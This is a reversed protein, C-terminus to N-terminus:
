RSVDGCRARGATPVSQLSPSFTSTVSLEGVCIAGGVALGPRQERVFGGGLGRAPRRLRVDSGPLYPTCPLPATSCKELPSDLAIVSRYGLTDAVPLPVPTLVDVDNVRWHFLRQPLAPAAPIVLDARSISVVPAGRGLASWLNLKQSALAYAGGVAISAAVFAWGERGDFRPRALPVSPRSHMRLALALAPVTIVFAYLFRPAPAQWASFAAGLLALAVVARMGDLGVPPHSASRMAAVRRLVHIALPLCSAAVLAIFPHDIVWPVIWGMSGSVSTEGRQQWRAVDRVYAAYDAARSAGVSWPADLCAIPSPYAPCGSAVLNAAIFPGVIGVAIGACLLVRRLYVRTGADGSPALVAYSGTAIVAPVAFPKMAWAGLAIVFPILRRRFSTPAPSVILVAWAAVVILANAAVDPSPSAAHGVVIAWILAASGFALFWDAIAARGAAIRATALATQAGALVLAFGLPVNAARNAAPGADFAAAVTFWASVHGLRNHILAMGPVIGVERLWRIVGVHYVLSDYLTVPDSALAAAGIATAALGVGISWAPLERSAVAPLVSQQIRWTAVAGLACLAIAVGMSASPTLASFLSAGLLSVACVIVGIWTALILRDGPRVDDAGLLALVGRGVLWVTLFIVAWAALDFIM